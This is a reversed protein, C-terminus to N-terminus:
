KAAHSYGSSKVGSTRAVNLDSRLDIHYSIFRARLTRATKGRQVGCCRNSSFTEFRRM